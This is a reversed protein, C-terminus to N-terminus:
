CMGNDIMYTTVIKVASSNSLFSDEDLSCIVAGQKNGHGRKDFFYANVPVDGSLLALRFCDDCDLPPIESSVPLCKRGGAATELLKIFHRPIRTPGLQQTTCAVASQSLRKLLGAVSYMMHSPSKNAHSRLKQQGRSCGKTSFIDCVAESLTRGAAVMGEYSFIHVKSPGFVDSLWRVCELTLMACPFQRRRREIEDQMSIILRQKNTGHFRSLTLSSSDRRVALVHVDFDAFVSRILVYGEKSCTDFRESSVILDDTSNADLVDLLFGASWPQCNGYKRQVSFCARCERCAEMSSSDICSACSPCKRPAECVYAAFDAFGKTTTRRGCTWPYILDPRFGGFSALHKQFSTSGTKHPGIHLILRRKHMMALGNLQEASPALLTREASGFGTPHTSSVVLLPLLLTVVSALGGQRVASHRIRSFSQKLYAIRM